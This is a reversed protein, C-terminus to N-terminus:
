VITERVQLGILSSDQIITLMYIRSVQWGAEISNLDSYTVSFRYRRSPSSMNSSSRQSECM